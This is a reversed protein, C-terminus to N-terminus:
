ERLVDLALVADAGDIAACGETRLEFIHRGTPLDRPVTIEFDKQWIKYRGIRVEFTQDPVVGRGDFVLTGQDVNRPLHSDDIVIRGRVTQGPKVKQLFPEVRVRHPNWDHLHYGSLCLRDAAEASVRGWEARRRFDEADYVFPGGHEALVWEPAISAVTKASRAYLPPFSRNLGMWGGSGSFMDQHFFNDATFLCHKGDIRTEVGMTFETQGPLHHFRFTYERWALTEHEKPRKDFTIPRADTFPAKLFFPDALPGAVQDLSWVQIKSRDFFYVGDFHDFHAHSFMVLELPGLKQDKQLKEFQDFSRKDWPDYMMCANDKSVLVYTNGTLYLHESIKSWPKSGNSEAQEKALFPYQPANGLRVKTFREFSKLFGIEEVAEVSMRLADANDNWRLVPGHSPCLVDPAIEQIKKLSLATPKLGADTWHDWDTTYPTQLKGPTTFAGGCLLHRQGQKGRQILFGVQARAHGPLEIVQISFDKWRITQGDKLSYEIGPIGVPPVLFATRSSRLPISEKWYKEVKEPVLWEDAKEPAKVSVTKPVKALRAVRDRHYSTLYVGDISRIGQQSMGEFPSFPVDFLIANEGEVLAYGAPLFQNEDFTGNSWFTANPNSQPASIRFIGPAIQTWRATPKRSPQGGHGFWVAAGLVGLGLLSLVVRNLM